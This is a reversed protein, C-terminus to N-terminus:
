RRTPGSAVQGVGVWEKVLDPQDLVEALAQDVHEETVRYTSGGSESAAAAAARRMVEGRVLRLKRELYRFLDFSFDEVRGAPVDSTSPSMREPRPEVPVSRHDPETEPLITAFTSSM